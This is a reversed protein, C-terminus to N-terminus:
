RWSSLWSSILSFHGEGLSLEPQEIGALDRNQPVPRFFVSPWLATSLVEAPADWQFLTGFQYLGIQIPYPKKTTSSLM